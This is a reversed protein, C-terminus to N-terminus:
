HPNDCRFWRDAPHDPRSNLDFHREVADRVNARLEDLKDAEIAIDVGVGRAIFGGAAAEEVVFLTETNDSMAHLKREKSQTVGRDSSADLSNCTELYKM